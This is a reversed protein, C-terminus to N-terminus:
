DKMIKYRVVREVDWEDKEVALLDGNPLFAVPFPHQGELTGIYEGSADFVDGVLSPDTGRRVLCRIKGRRGELAVGAAKALRRDSLVEVLRTGLWGPAGTVLVDPKTKRRRRTNKRLRQMRRTRETKLSRVFRDAIAIGGHKGVAGFRPRIGRRRCWQRRCGDPVRARRAATRAARM